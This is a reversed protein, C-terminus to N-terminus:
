GRPTFIFLYGTVLVLNLILAYIGALVDDAMIGLGSELEELRRIPYPKWIDFLRFFVFATILGWWTQIWFPGSLLAIMQGAVEDIVVASPDKKQMLREARSAAWIGIMTVLFCAALEFTWKSSLIYVAAGLHRRAYAELVTHVMSSLAVFLGVGVLSGLTGPAIPFYGVGCTAVALAVYDIASRRAPPAVATTSVSNAPNLEDSSEKIPSM